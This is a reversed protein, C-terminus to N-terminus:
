ALREPLEPVVLVAAVARVGHLGPPTIGTEALTAKDTTLPEASTPLSRQTQLLQVLAEAAEV